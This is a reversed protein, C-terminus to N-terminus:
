REEKHYVHEGFQSTWVPSQPLRTGYEPNTSGHSRLGGRVDASRLPETVERGEGLSTPSPTASPGSVSRPDGMEGGAALKIREPQVEAGGLGEDDSVSRPTRVGSLSRGLAKGGHEGGRETLPESDFEPSGAYFDRGERALAADLYDTV